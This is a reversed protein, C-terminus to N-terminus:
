ANHNDSMALSTGPGRLILVARVGPSAGEPDKGTRSASRKKLKLLGVLVALLLTELLSLSFPTGIKEGYCAAALELHSASWEALLTRASKLICHGSFFPVATHAGCEEKGRGTCVFCVGM